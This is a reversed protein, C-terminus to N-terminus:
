LLNYVYGYVCRPRLGTAGHTVSPIAGGDVVPVGAQPRGPEGDPWANEPLAMRVVDFSAPLEPHRTYVSV